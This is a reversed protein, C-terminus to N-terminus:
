HYKAIFYDTFGHQKQDFISINTYGTVYLNGNPTVALGNAFSYGSQAGDDWLIKGHSNAKSVFYYSDKDHPHGDIDINTSGAIYVNSEKDFGIGSGYTFGGSEGNQLLMIKNGSEDYKALFLDIIGFKSEGLTGDTDGIIYIYNSQSINIDNAEANGNKVGFQKAWVLKGDKDYKAIFYDSLGIQSEGSLGVTTWGTVYSNGDKDIRVSRAISFGTSEGVQQAWLLHGSKNYKAIFYDVTGHQFQGTIGGATAGAVYSNGEKDATIAFGASFGDKRGVQATWEENGYEDYKAIFCDDNGQQTQASVRVSTSGTVYSNNNQDATIGRGITIGGKAGVQRSWLFGGSKNYKAILYDQYGHQTQGSLGVTTTGTVYIDDNQDVTIGNGETIGTSEGVQQAWIIHPSTIPELPPLIPSIPPNIPRLAPNLPELPATPPKYGPTLNALAKTDKTASGSGCASVTIICLILLIVDSILKNVKMTKM